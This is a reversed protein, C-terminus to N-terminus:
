QDMMFDSRIIIRNYFGSNPNPHYRIYITYNCFSFSKVQKRLSAKTDQDGVKNITINTATTSTSHTSNSNSIITGSLSKHSDADVRVSSSSIGELSEEEISFESQSM